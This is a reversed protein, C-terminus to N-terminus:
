LMPERAKNLLLNMRLLADKVLAVLSDASIIDIKYLGILDEHVNFNKDVWRLCLVVQKFKQPKM